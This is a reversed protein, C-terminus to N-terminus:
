PGVNFTTEALVHWRGNRGFYGEHAVCSAAGSSWSPTPGLQLVLQNNVDVKGWTELAVSGAQYCYVHVWADGGPNATATTTGGFYGDPVTLVATGRGGAEVNDVGAIFGAPKYVASFALATVAVIAAILFAQLGVGIVHRTGSAFATGARM